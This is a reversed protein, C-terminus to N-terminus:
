SRSTAGPFRTATNAAICRPSVNSSPSSVPPVSTTARWRSRTTRGSTARTSWRASAGSQPARGVRACAMGRGRPAHRRFPTAVHQWSTRTPAPSRAHARLRAHPGVAPHRARVDHGAGAARDRAPHRVGGGRRERAAPRRRRLRVLAFQALDYGRETSVSRIARSMNANAVRLVGYAAEDLSLGLRTPWRSRRDAARPRPPTRGALSRRAVRRSRAAAPLHQRRHRTVRDGGSTM